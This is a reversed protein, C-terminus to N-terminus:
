RARRLGFAVALGGVAGAVAFVVAETVAGGFPLLSPGQSWGLAAIAIATALATVLGVAAASALLQASIEVEGDLTSLIPGAGAVLLPALHYTTTPNNAALIAWLAGIGAM